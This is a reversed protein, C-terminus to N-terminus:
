NFTRLMNGCSIKLMLVTALTVWSVLKPRYSFWVKSM